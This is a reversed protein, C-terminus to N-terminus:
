RRSFSASATFTTSLSPTATASKSHHPPPRGWKRRETGRWPKDWSEPQRREIGNM